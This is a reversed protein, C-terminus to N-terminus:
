SRTFHYLAVAPTRCAAEFIGSRGARAFVPREPESFCLDSSAALRFGESTFHSETDRRTHVFGLVEVTGSPHSFASRWGRMRAGPHLDTLFLDAGRRAVRALERALAGLDAVHGATFSCIVVDAVRPPLPLLLCDALALRGRLLPNAAACAAMEASLDMGVASRVGRSMLPRLWRGTGCGVDLLDKGQLNPLLPELAREELALLPNPDHDYTAAWLRYGEQVSVQRVGSGQRLQRGDEPRVGWTQGTTASTV